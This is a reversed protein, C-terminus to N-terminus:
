NLVRLSKLLGVCDTIGQRYLLMAKHENALGLEFIIEEVFNKQDSTLNNTLINDFQVETKRLYEYEKTKKYEEMANDILADFFSDLEENNTM